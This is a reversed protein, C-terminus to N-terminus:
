LFFIQLLDLSKTVKAQKEKPIELPNQADYCGFFILEVM